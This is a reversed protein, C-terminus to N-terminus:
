IGFNKLRNQPELQRHTLIGAHFEKEGSQSGM